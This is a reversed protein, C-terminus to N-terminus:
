RRRTPIESVTKRESNDRRFKKLALAAASRVVYKPDQLRQELAPLASPAAPGFERLADIAHLRVQIEPDDLAQILAPLAKEGVTALSTVVSARVSKDSDRAMELLLPLTKDGMQALYNATNRRTYLNPDQSGDKFVPWVSELNQDIQWRAFAAALRMRNTPSGYQAELLPIAAAAGPGIKGFAPIIAEWVQTPYFKSNVMGVSYLSILSPDLVPTGPPAFAPSPSPKPIPTKIEDRLEEFIEILRPVAHTAAPGLQATATVASAVVQRDWSTLEREIFATVEPNTLGSRGVANVVEITLLPNGREAAATLASLAAPARPAMKVLAAVVYSALATPAGNVDQDDLKSALLSVLNPYEPAIAALALAAEGRPDVFRLGANRGDQFFQILAPAVAEASPGLRGLIEIASRRVEADNDRLAAILVPLAQTAELARSKLEAAAERRTMDAPLPEFSGLHHHVLTPLKPWVRQCFRGLKSDEKRVERLLQGVTKKRPTVSNLRHQLELGIGVGSLAVCIVLMWKGRRNLTPKGASMREILGRLAAKARWFVARM